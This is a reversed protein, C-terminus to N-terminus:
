SVEEEEEEEEKVGHDAPVAFDVLKCSRKKKNILVLDIRVAAMLHDTQIKFDGLIRQTENVLISKAKNMFM